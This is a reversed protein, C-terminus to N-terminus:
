INRVVLFPSSLSLPNEMSVALRIRGASSSPVLRLPVAVSGLWETTM